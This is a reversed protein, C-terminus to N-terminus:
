FPAQSESEFPNLCSRDSSLHHTPAPKDKQEDKYEASAQGAGRRRGGTWGGSEYGIGAVSKHSRCPYM